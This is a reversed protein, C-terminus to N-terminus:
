SLELTVWCILSMEPFARPTRPNEFPGGCSPHHWAKQLLDNIKLVNQFYLAYNLIHLAQGGM